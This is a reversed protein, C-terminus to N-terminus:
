NVKSYESRGKNTTISHCLCVWSVDVDFWVALVVRMQRRDPCSANKLSCHHFTLGLWFTCNLKLHRFKVDFTSFFREDRIWAPHIHRLICMCFVCVCVCVCVCVFVWVASHRSIHTKSLWPLTSLKWGTKLQDNHKILAGWNMIYFGIRQSSYFGGCILLWPDRIDKSLACPNSFLCSQFVTGVVRNQWCLNIFVLYISFLVIFM